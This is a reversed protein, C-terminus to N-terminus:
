RLKLTSLALLALIFSIIWFRVIIKPESWGKLEFHHHIPAMRFLRKGKTVKFFGVQLIVSITELVFVGGVIALVIEQKVIVAVTGLTAGLPLSGVDGMFLSAPYANFWLFGLGAGVMAGCFVSIEGAGKVNLIQLYNAIKAHGSVYAFIIFTGFAIVTPMIALGDLGDTLNVANSTGVIIFVGLIIYFYGLDVVLNKFFPLALKSSVNSSDVYNILLVALTGVVLQGYFKAKPHLGEPNKKITKIYDDLFGIIGTGVMVFIIIWIYSNTIDAWLLTTILASLLIGVGGMTPTGEKEKHREPEYGKTKQSLQLQKLLKILLPTIFLSIILATIIAYATRFTIYKFVNFLSFYKSLPYLLNYLM